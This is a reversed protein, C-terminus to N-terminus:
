SKPRLPWPDVDIVAVIEATSKVIIATVDTDKSNIPLFGLEDEDVGLSEILADVERAVGNGANRLAVMPAARAAIQQTNEAYRSWFEPRREIDPAGEFLTEEILRSRAVPDEPVKAVAREPGILPKHIWDASEDRAVDKSALVHFRDVAFVLYYPREQYLVTVGYILAVVQVAAIVSMDLWLKPKGQRFVILTLLPGLVLDVGILIRVIPWAGVAEFYPSPYWVTFVLLIVIGVVSASVGLHSLFARRKSANRWSM